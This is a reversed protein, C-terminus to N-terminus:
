CMLMTKNICMVGEVYDAAEPTGSLKRLGFGEDAAGVFTHRWENAGKRAISPDNKLKQLEGRKL